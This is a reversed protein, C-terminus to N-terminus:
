CRMSGQRSEKGVASGQPRVQGPKYYRKDYGFFTPSFFVGRTMAGIEVTFSTASCLTTCYNNELSIMWFFSCYYNMYWFM